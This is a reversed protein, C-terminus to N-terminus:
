TEKTAKKPLMVPFMVMPVSVSRLVLMKHSDRKRSQYRRKTNVASKVNKNTEMLNQTALKQVFRRHHHYQNLWVEPM